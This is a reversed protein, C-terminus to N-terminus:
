GNDLMVQKILAEVSLEIVDRKYLTMENKYSLEMLWAKIAGNDKGDHIQKQIKEKISYATDISEKIRNLAENGKFYTTHGLGIIDPRMSEILNLSQVYQKFGFFFLPMNSDDSYYFGASDSILMTGESKIFLSLIGSTHGPTAIAKIDKNIITDGNNIESTVKFGEDSVDFTTEGLGRYVDVFHRDEIMFNQIVQQKLLREKTKTSSLVFARNFHKALHPLGTTHDAHEHSIVIYGIDEKKINLANIQDFIKKSTATVGAEFIIHTDDAKILYSIFRSDGLAYVRDNLKFPFCQKM